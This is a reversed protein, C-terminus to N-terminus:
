AEDDDEGDDDMVVEVAMPTTTERLVRVTVTARGSGEGPDEPDPQDLGWAKRECDQAIKLAQGTRVAFKALENAKGVSGGTKKLEDIGRQILSRIVGPEVRHRSLVDARAKVSLDQAARSLDPPDTPPRLRDPLSEARPPRTPHPPIPEDLKVPTPLVTADAAVNAAAALRAGTAAKRWGDVTAKRSLAQRSVGLERALNALTELPDTEFRGRAMSYRQEIVARAEAARRGRQAQTRRVKTPDEKKAPPKAM